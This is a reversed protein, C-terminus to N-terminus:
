YKLSMNFNDSTQFWLQKIFPTRIEVISQNSLNLQQQHRHM